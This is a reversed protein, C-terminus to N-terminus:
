VVNPKVEIDDNKKREEEEDMMSKTENLQKINGPILNIREKNTEGEEM